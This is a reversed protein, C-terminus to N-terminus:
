YRGARAAAASQAAATPGVDTPMPAYIGGASAGVPPLAPRMGAVIEDVSAAGSRAGPPSLPSCQEVDIIMLLEGKGRLADRSAAGRESLDVPSSTNRYVVNDKADLVVYCTHADAARAVLVLAVGAFAVSFFRRHM